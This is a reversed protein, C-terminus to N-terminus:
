KQTAARKYYVLVSPRLPMALIWRHAAIDRIARYGLFLLKISFFTLLCVTFDDFCFSNEGNNERLRETTICALPHHPLRPLFGATLQSIRSRAIALFIAILNFFPSHIFQFTTPVCHNRVTKKRLQETEIYTLPLRRRRPSFQATSQLIVSWADAAFIAIYNFFHHASSSFFIWFGITEWREIKTEAVKYCVFATLTLPPTFIPRCTSIDGIALHGRFCNNLQFFPSRSFQLIAFVCNIRVTRKADGTRHSSRTRATAAPSFFITLPM